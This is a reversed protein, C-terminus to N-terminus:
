RRHAGRLLLILFLPAGVLATLIGVPLESGRGALALSRSVADALALYAGGALCSGVLLPGHAPGLLARVAHPVLLGVFGIPGTVAVVTATIASGVVLVRRRLSETDVGRSSAIEEGFALQDLARGKTIAWLVAPLVIVPIPALDSWGGVQLGGMMWRDMARLRLPDALFRVLLIAAGCFFNLTVGALLLEGPDLAARGRALRDLGLVALAALVLALVTVSSLPGLTFQLAPVSLALFAGLAGAFSIGLTYPTALANRLLTQYLAGAVSLAGGALLALVVRPVRLALIKAAPDEGGELWRVLAAPVDIREVGFWPGTAAAAIWLLGLVTLGRGVSWRGRM